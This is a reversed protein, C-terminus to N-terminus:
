YSHLVVLPTGALRERGGLAAIEVMLLNAAVTADCQQVLEGAAALTGGTALVDDIVVVRQGPQLADAHMEITASGYELEYSTTVTRAPLKGAKRVPVFPLGLVHAIPAGLIFGRAEVGLVADVDGLASVAASLESVVAALGDPDALLPTVDRFTVGPEPWDEIPRVLRTIAASATTTTVPTM